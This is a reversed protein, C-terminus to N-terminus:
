QTNIKHPVFPIEAYQFFCFSHTVHLVLDVYVLRFHKSANISPKSNGNRTYANKQMRFPEFGVIYMTTSRFDNQRGITIKAYFVSNVLFSSQWYVKCDRRHIQTMGTHTYTHANASGFLPLLPDLPPRPPWAGGGARHFYTMFFIAVSLPRMSKMNRQGGKGTVPDAGPPALSTGGTWIRENEHLKQYFFICFLVNACGSQSNAGRLFIRIRTHAHTHTHSIFTLLSDLRSTM